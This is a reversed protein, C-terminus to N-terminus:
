RSLLIINRCVKGCQLCTANEDMEKHELRRHTVLGYVEKGCLRCKALRRKKIRKKMGGKAVKEGDISREQSKKKRSKKTKEDLVVELSNTVMAMKIDDKEDLEDVNAPLDFDEPEQKIEHSNGPFDVDDLSGDSILQLTDLAQLYMYM